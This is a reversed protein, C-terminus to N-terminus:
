NIVCDKLQVTWLFRGDCRGKISLRMGKSISALKDKESGSFNCVVDEDLRIDEASIDTVIGTVSIIKDKYKQDGAAENEKYSSVLEYSGVNYVASSNKTSNSPDYFKFFLYLLFVLGAVYIWNNKYGNNNSKM